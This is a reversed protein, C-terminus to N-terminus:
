IGLMVYVVLFWVRAAEEEPTAFAENIILQEFNDDRIMPIREDWPLDTVKQQAERLKETINVGSRAFIHGIPGSTLISSWSFRGASSQPQFM